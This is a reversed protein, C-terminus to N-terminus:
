SSSVDKKSFACSNQCYSQVTKTYKARECVAIPFNFAIPSLSTGYKRNSNSRRRSAVDCDSYTFSGKFVRRIRWFRLSVYQTDFVEGCMTCLVAQGPVPHHSEKHRKLSQATRFRGNCEDCVFKKIGTHISTHQEWNGQNLSAQM